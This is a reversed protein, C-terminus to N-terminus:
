PRKPTSPRAATTAAATDTAIRFTFQQQVVQRVRQNGIKAPRFRMYPLADRVAQAFEPTTAALVTFSTTDAFGSTDVIYQAEVAGPIHKELMSLPFVPAASNAAVAVASDVEIVTFVSDRGDGQTVVPTATDPAAAGVPAPLPRSNGATHGPVGVEVARHSLDIYQVVEQGSSAIGGFAKRAPAIYSATRNWLTDDSMGSPPLTAAVWAVIVGAHAVASIAASGTLPTPRTYSTMWLRM